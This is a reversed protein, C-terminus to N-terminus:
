FTNSIFFYKQFCDICCIYYGVDAYENIIKDTDWCYGCGNATIQDCDTTLNIIRCQEIKKSIDGKDVNATPSTNVLRPHGDLVVNGKVVNTLKLFKSNLELNM